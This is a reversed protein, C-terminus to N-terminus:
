IKEYKMLSPKLLFRNCFIMKLESVGGIMLKVSIKQGLTHADMRKRFVKFIDFAVEANRKKLLDDLKYRYVEFSKIDKETFYLKNPDLLDLYRDLIRASYDDNLDNTLYHGYRLHYLTQYVDEKLEANMTLATDSTETPKAQV